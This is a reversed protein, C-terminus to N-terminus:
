KLKYTVSISATVDVSSPEMGVAASEASGGMNVSDAMKAYLYPRAYYGSESVSVVSGLKMGLGDAIAQAKMKANETAKKLVESRVKEQADTSLTFQVSDVGNVGNKVASDIVKGINELKKTSVKLSYAATYGKFVPGKDTWDEKKYINYSQVEFTVDEYNKMATAVADYKAKADASAEEATDKLVEIRLYSEALDPQITTKSEGTQTTTQGNYPNEPVFLLKAVFLVAIIAIAITVITTIQNKM